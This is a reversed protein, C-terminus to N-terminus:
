KWWVCVAPASRMSKKSTVYTPIEIQALRAAELITSGQPASVERGNIKITINEM